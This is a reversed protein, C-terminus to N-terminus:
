APDRDISRWRVTLMQLFEGLCGQVLPVVDPGCKIGEPLTEKVLKAVTAAPFSAERSASAHGSDDDDDDAGLM